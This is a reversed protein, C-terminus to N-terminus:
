KKGLLNGLFSLFNKSKNISQSPLHSPQVPPSNPKSFYIKGEYGESYKSAVECAELFQKGDLDSSINNDFINVTAVKNVYLCLYNEKSIRLYFEYDMCYKNNVDYRYHDYVSRKFFIDQWGVITGYSLLNNRNFELNPCTRLICKREQTFYTYSDFYIADFDCWESNYAIEELINKYLLDDSGLYGIISGTAYDIGKNFADSIGKDDEKLWVINNGNAEFESIIEHSEDTSKNDVIILEKNVYNQNLFHTIANRIYKGGNYNPMIM